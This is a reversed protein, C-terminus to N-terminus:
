NSTFVKVFDVHMSGTTIQAPNLNSFFNGGVALNLVIRETKGFLNPIYGGTKTEIVNGDLLSTLSNQSWIMEYVHYCTTLDVNSTIFGVQNKVLNRNAARGYFYNTQYKFPEQGRAEIIDIEGQTPWPDGYSWFAPWMGYGSALKVRAVIRVKPTATSASINAKCEIRGSTYNFTKPTADFPNTAGTVQEKRATIVLNGNQVQMNGAQYYQLENNFAGGTWINWKSLDTDFNDEFQKTYGAAIVAAENFPHDCIGTANVYVNRASVISSSETANQVDVKGVQKKCSSFVTLIVVLALLLHDVAIIRKM